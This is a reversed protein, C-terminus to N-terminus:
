EKVYGTFYILDRYNSYVQLWANGNPFIELHMKSIYKVNAPTITINWGGKKRIDVKYDFKTSTFM